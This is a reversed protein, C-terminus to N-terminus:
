FRLHQDGSNWTSIEPIGPQIPWHARFNWTSLELIGPASRQFEPHQARSNWTNLESIRLKSRWFELHLDGFSWDASDSTSRFKRQWAPHNWNGSSGHLIGSNKKQKQKGAPLAAASQPSPGPGRSRGTGRIGPIRARRASGPSLLNPFEQWERPKELSNQSGPPDLSGKSNAARGRDWIGANALAPNRTIASSIFPYPSDM